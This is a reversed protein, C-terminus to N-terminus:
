MRNKERLEKKEERKERTKAERGNKREGNQVWCQNM